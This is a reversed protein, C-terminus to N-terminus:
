AVKMADINVGSGSSGWAKVYHLGNYLLDITQEQQWLEGGGNYTQSISGFSVGDCSVSLDGYGAGKAYYFTIFRGKCYFYMSNVPSSNSATLTTLYSFAAGSQLWTGVYNLFASRDDVKAKSFVGTIGLEWWDLAEASQNAGWYLSEWNAGTRENILNYLFVSLTYFVRGPDNYTAQFPAALRWNDKQTETFEAWANWGDSWWGNFDLKAFQFVVSGWKSGLASRCAGRAWLGLRSRMKVLDALFRREYLQQDTRPDKPIEYSRVVTGQYVILEAETGSVVPYGLPLIVKAM